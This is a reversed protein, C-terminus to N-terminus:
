SNLEKLIAPGSSTGIRTAGALIMRLATELNRIGGSAKVGVRPPVNAALLKVDEETAGGAAFGTSTKVFDAGARVAARCAEIKEDRTLLATEMIVKVLAKGSVARVVAAIDRQVFASEGGRLAGINLVMDVEHAGNKVALRAEAVKTETRAAGLPFGVVSCLRVRSRGLLRACREVWVPNVCVACFRNTRAEACLQRVDAWVAEPRLLTHDIVSALLRRLLKKKSAPWGRVAAVARAAFDNTHERGRPVVVGEGGRAAGPCVAGGLLEIIATANNKM